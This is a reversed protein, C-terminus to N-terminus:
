DRGIDKGKDRACHCCHQGSGCSWGALLTIYILYALRAKTRISEVPSSKCASQLAAVRIAATWAFQIKLIVNMVTLGLRALVM